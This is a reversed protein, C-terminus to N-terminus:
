GPLWGDRYGTPQRHHELHAYAADPDTTEETVSTGYKAATEDPVYGGWDPNDVSKDRAGMAIVVLPGSGAGVITHQTGAPCHVFDWARLPREEGEVILVGEGAIVLFDEDDAEWHYMSMHEGPQHVRINVGLQDFGPKGELLCLASRGEAHMWRADKANLVYWGAGSPVRGTETQEFSAEPVV